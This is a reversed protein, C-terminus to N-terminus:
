SKSLSRNNLQTQHGGKTGGLAQAKWHFDQFPNRKLPFFNCPKNTKPDYNALTCIYIM